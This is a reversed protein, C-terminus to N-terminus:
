KELKVKADVGITGDTTAEGELFLFPLLKWSVIARQDTKDGINGSYTVKVREGLSKSATVTSTGKFIKGDVTVDELGLYEEAKRSAFGFFQRGLITGARNQMDKNFSPLASGFTLLSFIEAENLDSERASLATIPNKLDGTIRLDITYNRQNDQTPVTTEASLNIQPNFEYQSLQVLQGQTVTFIRDLFRVTGKTVAVQGSILPIQTTGNIGLTGKTYLRLPILGQSFTRSGLDINASIDEPISISLDMALPSTDATPKVSAGSENLDIAYTVQSKGLEAFGSLLSGTKGLSYQLNASNIIGSFLEQWQVETNLVQLHFLLAPPHKLSVDTMTGNLTITGNDLKGDAGINFADGNGICVLSVPGVVPKFDPIDIYASDIRLTGASQLSKKNGFFMMTGSVNGAPLSLATTLPSFVGLPVDRATISANFAANSLISDPKALPIHAAIDFSGETFLIKVSDLLMSTDSLTANWQSSRATAYPTIISDSLISVTTSYTGPSDGSVNISGTINVFRLNHSLSGATLNEMKLYGEPIWLGQIYRLLVDVDLTGDAYWKPIYTHALSKAQIRSGQIRCHASSDLMFGKYPLFPITGSISLISPNDPISVNCFLIARYNQVSVNGSISGFRETFGISDITFTSTIHPNDLTGNIDSTLNIRSEPLAKLSQIANKAIGFDFNQIALTGAIKKGIHTLSTSFTGSAINGSRTHTVEQAELHLMATDSLSLRAQM